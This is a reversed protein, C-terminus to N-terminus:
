SADEQVDELLKSALREVQVHRSDNDIDEDGVIKHLALAYAERAINRYPDPSSEVVELAPVLTRLRKLYRRRREGKENLSVRYISQLVKLSFEDLQSELGYLPSTLVGAVGTGRPSEEPETAFIKGDSSRSMVRIEEKRLGAVLLPQHTALITHSNRHIGGINRLHGLYEIGWRPNLHTDPEDLIYLSAEERTFRMLGLVTLLQQEGESLQRTHIPGSAGRVRVRVRFDEILGSLRMTDLAQFLAKPDADYKGALGRLATIDPIFLHIVDREERTRFDPKVTIKRSIPALSYNRFHELLDRVPGKAGWFDEPATGKKAWVPKRVTLLASDFSEIRPHTKLFSSVQADESFYFALLAFLGHVPRACIFRRFELKTPTDDESPPKLTSDLARRDHRRFLEEFRDSVGSYYGVVYKPTWNSKLAAFSVKKEDVTAKAQQDVKAAVLVVAGRLSYRIEYAFVAPEGLDINRFITIIAELLNSKASGNRGIIVAIDCSEDFDVKLGDLNKWPSKIHLTDIRMASDGSLRLQALRFKSPV